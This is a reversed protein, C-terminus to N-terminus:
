NRKEAQAVKVSETAGVARKKADERSSDTAVRILPSTSVDTSLVGGGPLRATMATVETEMSPAFQLMTTRVTELRREVAHIKDAKLYFNCVNLESAILKAYCDMRITEVDARHETFAQRELFSNALEVTDLTKSQDRDFSRTRKFSCDVARYLAYETKPHGPYFQSFEAYRAAATDLKGLVRLGDALELILEAREAAEDCLTAMRETYKVYTDTDPKHRTRAEKLEDYSMEKFTKRTNKFFKSESLKKFWKSNGFWSGLTNGQGADRNKGGMLQRSSPMRSVGMVISSYPLLLLSM